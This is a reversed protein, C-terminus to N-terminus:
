GAGVAAKARLRQEVANYLRTEVRVLDTFITDLDVRGEMANDAMAYVTTAAVGSRFPFVIDVIWRTRRSACSRPVPTPDSRDTASIRSSKAFSIFAIGTGSPMQTCSVERPPRGASRM